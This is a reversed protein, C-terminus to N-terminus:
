IDFFDDEVGVNALDALFAAPDVHAMQVGDVMSILQGAQCTTCRSLCAEVVVRHDAARLEDVLGAGKLPLRDLSSKCLRILM